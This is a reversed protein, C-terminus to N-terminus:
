SKWLPSVATTCLNIREVPMSSSKTSSNIFSLQLYLIFILIYLYIYSGVLKMHQPKGASEFVSYIQLSIITHTIDSSLIIQTAYVQSNM